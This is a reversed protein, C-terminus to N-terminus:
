DLGAAPASFFILEGFNAFDNLGFCFCEFDCDVLMGVNSFGVNGFILFDWCGFIGFDRFRFIRFEWFRFIRFESFRLIGFDSFRM